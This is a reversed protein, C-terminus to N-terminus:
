NVSPKVYAQLLKGRMLNCYSTCFVVSLSYFSGADLVAASICFSANTPVASKKKEKIERKHISAMM